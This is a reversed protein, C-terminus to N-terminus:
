FEAGADGEELASVHGVDRATGGADSVNSDGHAREVLNKGEVAIQESKGLNREVVGITCADGAERGSVGGEDLQELSPM